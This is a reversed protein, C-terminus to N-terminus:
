SSFFLRSYLSTNRNKGNNRNGEQRAMIKRIIETQLFDKLWDKLIPGIVVYQRCPFVLGLISPYQKLFRPPWCFAAYKAPASHFSNDVVFEKDPSVIRWSHLPFLCIRLQFFVSPIHWSVVRLCNALRLEEFMFIHHFLFDQYMLFSSLVIFLPFYPSM